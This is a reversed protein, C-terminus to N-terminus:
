RIRKKIEKFLEGLFVKPESAVTGEYKTASGTGKLGHYKGTKEILPAPYLNKDRVRLYIKGSPSALIVIDAELQNGLVSLNAPEEKLLYCIISIGRLYTKMQNLCDRYIELIREQLCQNEEKLVKERAFFDEYREIMQFLSQSYKQSLFTLKDMLFSYQHFLRTGSIFSIKLGESVEKSELLRLSFIEGTNEPYPKMSPMSHVGKIHVIRKEGPYLKKLQEPIRPTMYTRIPLATEVVKQTMREIDKKWHLPLSNIPSLIMYAEDETLTFNKAEVGYFRSFLGKLVLATAHHQLYDKHFDPNLTMQVEDELLDRNLVHVTRGEKEYLRIVPIDDIKGQEIHINEDAFFLTQEFIVHLEDDEVWKEKTKTTLETLYPYNLYIKEM